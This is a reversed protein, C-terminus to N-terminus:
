RFALVHPREVPNVVDTNDDTGLSSMSRPTVDVCHICKMSRRLTSTWDRVHLSQAVPEPRTM